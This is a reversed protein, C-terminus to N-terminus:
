TQRIREAGYRKLDYRDPESQYSDPAASEDAILQGDAFVLARPTYELMLHMDHTIMVVTVGKENLRRLFEMIETYHHFDQGATPEDLIILEPNQMVYGIHKARHRINETLLDKGQFLIEGQDPDEFGCVLKSFTSKGAFKQRKWRKM